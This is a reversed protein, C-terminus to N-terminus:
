RGQCYAQLFWARTGLALFHVISSALLIFFLRYAVIYVIDNDYNILYLSWSSPTKHFPPLTNWLPLKATGWQRCLRSSLVGTHLHFAALNNKFITSCVTHKRRQRQRQLTKDDRSHGSALL